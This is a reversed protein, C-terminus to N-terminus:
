SEQNVSENAEGAQNTGQSRNDEPTEPKEPKYYIVGQIPRYYDKVILKTDVKVGNEYYHKYTTVRLGDRSKVHERKQGPQTVYKGQTDEIMKPKPAPVVETLVSELEITRNNPIPEGYLEVFVHDGESYTRIFVPTERNNRFKLDVGGYTVTADLGRPVYSVPFSHHYREVIEMDALLAANYITSSSQCVGGGIGDQMSKDPMIVPAMRFGTERTRPGVADNFSFVEGPDIRYGNVKNLAHQVNFKRNETNGIVDTSFSVILNAAKKLKDVFVSPQVVQPEITISGYEGKDVMESVSAYLAEGDVYLGTKESTFTFKEKAHPHFEITADMPEYSISEAISMLDDKLLSTDYSLTTELRVTDKKVNQVLQYRDELTGERAVQYSEALKDEWNIHAAIDEYDFRWVEDQYVVEIFIGALRENAKQELIARAENLTKGGLSIDDIYVGEYFVDRYVVSEMHSIWALQEKRQKMRQHVFGAAIMMICLLLILIIVHPLRSKRAARRHSGHRASVKSM